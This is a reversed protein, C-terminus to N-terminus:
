KTPTNFLNSLEIVDIIKNEDKITLLTEPPYNQWLHHKVISENADTWTITEKDTIILM